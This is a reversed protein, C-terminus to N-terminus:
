ERRVTLMARTTMKSLVGSLTLSLSLLTALRECFVIASSRREMQSPGAALRVQSSGDSSILLGTLSSLSLRGELSTRSYMSMMFDM